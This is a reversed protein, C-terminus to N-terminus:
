VSHRIQDARRRRQQRFLLAYCEDAAHRVDVELVSCGGGDYLSMGAFRILLEDRTTVYQDNVSTRTTM